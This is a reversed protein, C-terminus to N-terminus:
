KGLLLSHTSVFVEIKGTNERHRFKEIVERVEETVTERISTESAVLVNKEIL